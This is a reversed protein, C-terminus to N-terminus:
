VSPATRKPWCSIPRSSIAISSTRQTHPQLHRPWRNSSPSLRQLLYGGAASCCRLWLEGEVLEMTLFCIRTGAADHHGVDHVRCVHRNTVNRALKVERLFRAIYRHDRAIEPIITKLALREGLEDDHVEYVEGMGGRGIFRIIRYRGASLDSDNFRPADESILTEALFDSAQDDNAVLEEVDACLDPDRNQLQQFAVARGEADLNVISDFAAKVQEWRESVM